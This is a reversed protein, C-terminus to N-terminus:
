HCRVHQSGREGVALQSGLVIQGQGDRGPALLLPAVCARGLWWM